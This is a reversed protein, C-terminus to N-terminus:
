SLIKDSDNELFCALVMGLTCGRKRTIVVCDPTEGLM